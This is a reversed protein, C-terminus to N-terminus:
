SKTGTTDSKKEDTKTTTTTTTTTDSTSSETKEPTSSSTKTESKNKDRFDTAYWGTGKLQFASASIQKQMTTKHCVPCETIPADSIKQFAELAHGCATCQYEYIPM